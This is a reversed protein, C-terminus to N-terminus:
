VFNISYFFEVKLTSKVTPAVTGSSASVCWKKTVAHTARGTITVGRAVLRSLQQVIFLSINYFEYLSIRILLKLEKYHELRWLLNQVHSVWRKSYEFYLKQILEEINQLKQQNNKIKYFNHSHNCCLM